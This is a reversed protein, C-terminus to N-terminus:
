KRFNELFDKFLLDHITVIYRCHKIPPVIYQFHAYDIQHRRIISPFEFLLRQYRSKSKLPIFHFRPDSFYQRLNEIDYAALYIELNEKKVLEQYVGEIFSTTGQFGKDFVHADVLLKIRKM